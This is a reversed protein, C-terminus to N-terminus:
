SRPRTALWRLLLGVALTGGSLMFQGGGGGAQEGRRWMFFFFPLSLIFFSTPALIVNRWM